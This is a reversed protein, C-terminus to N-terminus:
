KCKLQKKGFEEELEAFACRAERLETEKLAPLATLFGQQDYLEKLKAASADM